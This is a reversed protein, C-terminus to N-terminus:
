QKGACGQKCRRDSCGESRLVMRVVPRVSFGLRFRFRVHHIMTRHAMERRLLAWRFFFRCLMLRHVMGFHVMRLHVMGLHVMRLRLGIGIRMSVHVVGTVRHAGHVLGRWSCRRFACDRGACEFAWAM